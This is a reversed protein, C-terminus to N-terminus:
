KRENISKISTPIHSIKHISPTSQSTTVKIGFHEIISSLYLKIEKMDKKLKLIDKQSDQKM